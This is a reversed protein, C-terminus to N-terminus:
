PAGTTISATWATDIAVVAGPAFNLATFDIELHNQAAPLDGLRISVEGLESIPQPVGRIRLASILVSGAPRMAPPEPVFRAIGEPTTFWLTGRRDAFAQNVNESRLGDGATFHEIGGTAPQLRDVGRGTAAYIRGWRDSTVASVRNSLLSRAHPRLGDSQAPRRRTMSARFCLGSESSGAGFAAWADAHLAVSRRPLGDTTEFSRFGGDRYRVLESGLALWVSGSRDEVMANLPGEEDGLNTATYWHISDTSAEWRHWAVSAYSISQFWIDGRSDEFVITTSGCSWPWQLQKPRSGSYNSPCNPARFGGSAM